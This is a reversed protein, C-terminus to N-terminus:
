ENTPTVPDGRCAQAGGARCCFERVTSCTLGVPEVRGEVGRGSTPAADAWARWAIAANFAFSRTGTRETSPRPFSPSGASGACLAWMTMEYAGTQRIREFIRSCTACYGTDIPGIPPDPMEITIQYEPARACTPCVLPPVGIVIQEEANEASRARSRFGMSRRSMPLRAQVRSRAQRRYRADDISASVPDLLKVDAPRRRQLQANTVSFLERAERSAARRESTTITSISM